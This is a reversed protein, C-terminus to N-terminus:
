LRGPEGPPLASDLGGVQQRASARRSRDHDATLSPADGPSRSHVSCIVSPKAASASQPRPPSIPSLRSKVASRCRPNAIPGFLITAHEAQRTSDNFGQLLIQLEVRDRRIVGLARELRLAHFLTAGLLGILGLELLVQWGGM